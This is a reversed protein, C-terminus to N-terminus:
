NATRAPPRAQAQHAAAVIASRLRSLAEIRVSALSPETTLRAARVPAHRPLHAVEPALVGPDLEGLLFPADPLHVLRGTRRNVPHAASVM